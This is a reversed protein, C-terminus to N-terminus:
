FRSMLGQLKSTFTNVLEEFIKLLTFTIVQESNSLQPKMNM